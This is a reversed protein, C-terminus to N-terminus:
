LLVNSCGRSQNSLLSILDVRALHDEAEARGESSSHLLCPRRPTHTSSSCKEYSPLDM